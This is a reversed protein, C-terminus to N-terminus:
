KADCSRECSAKVEKCTHRCEKEADDCSTFCQSDTICKDACQGAVGTCRTDCADSADSCAQECRQKQALRRSNEDARANGDDGSPKTAPKPAPKADAAKTPKPAPAKPEPKPAKPESKPAPKSKQAARPPKDPTKTATPTKTPAPAEVSKAALAPSPKPPPPALASALADRLESPDRTSGTPDNSLTLTKGAVHAAFRTGKRAPAYVVTDIAALRQRNTSDACLTALAEGFARVNPLEFDYVDALEHHESTFGLADFAPWSYTANFRKGCATTAGAVSKALAADIRARPESSPDAAATHVLAVAVIPFTRAM